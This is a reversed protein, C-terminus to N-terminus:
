LFLFNLAIATVAIATFGAGLAIKSIASRHPEIRARPEKPNARDTTEPRTGQFNTKASLARESRHTNLPGKGGIAVCCM